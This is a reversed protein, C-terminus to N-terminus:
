KDIFEQLKERIRKLSKETIKRGEMYGDIWAKLEAVENNESTRYPYWYTSTGGCSGWHSYGCTGCYPPYTQNEFNIINTGTHSM